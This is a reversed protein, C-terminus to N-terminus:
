ELQHQQQDWLRRYLGCAALLERHSGLEVVAGRDM